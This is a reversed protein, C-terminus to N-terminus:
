NWTIKRLTDLKLRDKYARRHEFLLIRAMTSSDDDYQCLFSVEEGPACDFILTPSSVWFMSLSLHHRGAQIEFTCIQGNRIAGIRKGDLKIQFAYLFSTLQSARELVLASTQTTESRAGEEQQQLTRIREEIQRTDMHESRLISLADELAAIREELTSM